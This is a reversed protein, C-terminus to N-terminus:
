CIVEIGSTFHGKSIRGDDFQVDTLDSYPGLTTESLPYTKALKGYRCIVTAPFMLTRSPTDKDNKFLWHKYALVRCGPIIRDDDVNNM